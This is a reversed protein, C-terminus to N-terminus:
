YITPEHISLSAAVREERGAIDGGSKRIMESVAAIVQDSKIEDMCERTACHFLRCERCPIDDQRLIRINRNRLPLWEYAPQHAPAIVVAPTKTGRTIHLTGTDLSVITDCQCILAALERLNTLGALSVSRTRMQQRIAEIAVTESAAGLFIAPAATLSGIADAVEAFRHDWWNNPHGGSTQTVYAIRIKADGLHEAILRESNRLDISNFYIRPEGAPDRIGASVLKGMVNELVSQQTSWETIRDYIPASAPGVRYAPGSAVVLVDGVFKVISSNVLVLDPRLRASLRWSLFRTLAGSFSKIPAGLDILADVFPNAALADLAAPGCAVIVRSAPNARKIGEYAATNM